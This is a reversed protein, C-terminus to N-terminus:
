LEYNIMVIIVIILSVKRTQITSLKLLQIVYTAM